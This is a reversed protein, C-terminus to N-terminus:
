SWISGKIQRSRAHCRGSQLSSYLRGDTRQRDVDSGRWVNARLSRQQAKQQRLPSATRSIGAHANVNEGLHQENFNASQPTTDGLAM